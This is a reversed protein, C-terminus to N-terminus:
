LTTYTTDVARDVTAWEFFIQHRSGKGFQLRHGRDIRRRGFVFAPVEFAALAGDTWALYDLIRRLQPRLRQSSARSGYTSRALTHKAQLSCLPTHDPGLAM